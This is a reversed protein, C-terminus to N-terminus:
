GALNRQNGTARPPLTCGLRPDKRAFARLDHDSVNQVGFRFLGSCLDFSNAACGEINM